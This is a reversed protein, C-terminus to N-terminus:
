EIVEDARALIVPPTSLGITMAARLNVVLEVVTVQEIPLDAPKTGRLIKDVFVASRRAMTRLNPGYSLLGGVEVFERGEYMAPLRHEAALDVIRQRNALFAADSLVILAEAGDRKLISMSDGLDDLRKVLILRLDVVLERGTPRMADWQQQNQYNNANGLVGIRTLGPVAEKLLEIRKRNLDFVLLSVGTVNGGPRALSPVIGSGLLDGAASVVIPITTTARKAAHTAPTAVTIILDPRLHVLDAALTDLQDYHGEQAFRYEITLNHGEVYGFDRLAAKLTEIILPIRIPALYGIRYTKGTQQAHTPVPCPLAMASALLATFDRRRM